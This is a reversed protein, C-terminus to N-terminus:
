HERKGSLEEFDDYSMGIWRNKRLTKGSRKFM